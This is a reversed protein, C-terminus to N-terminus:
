SSIVRFSPNFFRSATVTELNKKSVGRQPNPPQLAFTTSTKKNKLM